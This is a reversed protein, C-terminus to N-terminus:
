LFMQQVSFYVCGVQTKYQKRKEVLHTNDPSRSVRVDSEEEEEPEDDDVDPEMLLQSLPNNKFGESSIMDQIM